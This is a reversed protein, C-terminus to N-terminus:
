FRLVVSAAPAGGLLQREHDPGDLDPQTADIIQASNRLDHPVLWWQLPPSVMTVLVLLGGKFDFVTDRPYPVKTPGPGNMDVTLPALDTTVLVYYLFVSSVLMVLAQFVVSGFYVKNHLKKSHLHGFVVYEYAGFLKLMSYGLLGSCFATVHIKANPGSTPAVAFTLGFTLALVTSALLWAAAAYFNIRGAGDFYIKIMHLYSALGLFAFSISFILAALPRAPWADVGICINYVHFIRTVNNDWIMTPNFIYTIIWGIAYNIFFFFDFYLLAKASGMKLWEANDVWRMEEIQPM